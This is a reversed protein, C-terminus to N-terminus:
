QRKNGNTISLTSSTLRIKEIAEQLSQAIDTVANRSSPKPCHTLISRCLQDISTFKEIIQDFNQITLDHRLEGAVETKKTLVTLLLEIIQTYTQALHKKATEDQSRISQAVGKILFCFFFFL